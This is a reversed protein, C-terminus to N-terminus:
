EAEKRQRIHRIAGIEDLIKEEEQSEFLQM